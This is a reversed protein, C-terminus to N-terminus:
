APAPGLPGAEDRPLTSDSIPQAALGRLQDPGTLAVAGCLICEEDVHGGDMGITAGTMQWVHGPCDVDDDAGM